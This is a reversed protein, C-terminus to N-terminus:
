CIEGYAMKALTATPFCQDAKDLPQEEIHISGMWFRGPLKNNRWPMDPFMEDRHRYLIAKMETELNWFGTTTKLRTELIVDKIEDGPSM